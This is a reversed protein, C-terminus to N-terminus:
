YNIGILSKVTIKGGTSKDQNGTVATTAVSGYPTSSSRATPSHSTSIAIVLHTSSEISQKSTTIAMASTTDFVGITRSSTSEYKAVIIVNM